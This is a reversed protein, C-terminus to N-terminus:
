RWAELLLLLDEADQEDDWPAALLHGASAGRVALAASTGARMGVALPAVASPATAQARPAATLPRVARSAPPIAQPPLIPPSAVPRAPARRAFGVPPSPIARHGSATGGVRLRATSHARLARPQAPAAYRISDRGLPEAGLHGTASGGFPLAATSVAVFRAVRFLGLLM